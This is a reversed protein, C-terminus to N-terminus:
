YISQLPTKRNDVFNPNNAVDHLDDIVDKLLFFRTIFKDINLLCITRSGYTMANDFIIIGTYFIGIKM